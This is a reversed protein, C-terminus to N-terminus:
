CAGSSGIISSKQPARQPTYGMGRLKAEFGERVRNVLMQQDFQRNESREVDVMLFYAVSAVAMSMTNGYDDTEEIRDTATKMRTFAQLATKHETFCLSLNSSTNNPIVCIQYMNNEGKTESPM